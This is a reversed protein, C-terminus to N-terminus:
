IFLLTEYNSQDMFFESSYTHQISNPSNQLFNVNLENNVESENSATKSEISKWSLEYLWARHASSKKTHHMYIELFSHIMDKLIQMCTYRVVKGQNYYVTGPWTLLGRVKLWSM